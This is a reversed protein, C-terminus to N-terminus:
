RSYSNAVSVQNVGKKQFFSSEGRHMAQSQRKVTLCMKNSQTSKILYLFLFKLTFLLSSTSFTGGSLM